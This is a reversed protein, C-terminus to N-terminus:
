QGDPEEGESNQSTGSASEAALRNGSFDLLLSCEKKVETLSISVV